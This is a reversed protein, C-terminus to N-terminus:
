LRTAGVENKRLVNRLTFFLVLFILASEGDRECLQLSDLSLDKIMGECPSLPSSLNHALGPVEMEAGSSSLFLTGGHISSITRQRQNSAAPETGNGSPQESTHPLVSYPTLARETAAQESRRACRTWEGM